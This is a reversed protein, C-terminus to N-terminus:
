RPATGVFRDLRRNMANFARIAHRVDLPGDEPVTDVSEGRGLRGAAAALRDMPRTIRRVMLVVILILAAAMIVTSVLSPLAWVSSPVPLASQANLWGGDALQVSITLGILQPTWAANFDDDRDGDHEDDDDDHREGATRRDEERRDRPLRGEPPRFRPAGEGYLNSREMMDVRIEGASSGELLRALRDRQPSGEDGLVVSTRSLWFRMLPANASRVVRRHLAPPTEDLVRVVSAVRLLVQERTVEQVAERREHLFFALTAVQSFVLALLLLAIIQGALRRPALRALMAGARIM